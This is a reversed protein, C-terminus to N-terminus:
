IYKKKCKPEKALQIPSLRPRCADMKSFKGIRCINKFKQKKLYLFSFFFALKKERKSWSTFVVKGFLFNAHILDKINRFRKLLLMVFAYNRAPEEANSSQVRRSLDRTWRAEGLTGFLLCCFGWSVWSLLGGHACAAWSFGRQEFGM